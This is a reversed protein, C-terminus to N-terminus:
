NIARLFSPLQCTGAEKLHRELWNRLDLFITQYSIDVYLDHYYGPYEHHEKDPFMVQQFFTRSADPHAVEDAGGHLILLPVKLHATNQSIWNVTTLFETALRASGYEHRLPDNLYATVLNPDPVNSPGRIGLKLSFSPFVNSLLRGLALKFPSIHVKGLAPATVIIGQLNEPFRLAYDLVITGGLSHGWLFCPCGSREHSVHQLFAHLDDRFEQWIMIHGRQGPSRGHGRLDFTYVEYYQAILDQVAIEFLAGHGGLGHVMVVAAQAQTEPHWSQYYLDLGGFGKFTGSFHRM